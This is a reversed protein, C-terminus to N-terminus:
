IWKIPLSHELIAQTIMRQIANVRVIGNQDYLSDINPYKKTGRFMLHEFMHALGSEGRREHRSGTPIGWYYAALSSEPRPHLLVTLGNKLRHKETSFKLQM